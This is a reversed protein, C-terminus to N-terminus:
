ISSSCVKSSWRNAMPPHRLPFRWTLGALNFWACPTHPRALQMIGVDPFNKSFAQNGLPLHRMVLDPYTGVAFSGRRNSHNMQTKLTDVAQVM